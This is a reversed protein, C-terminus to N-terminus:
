AAVSGAALVHDAAARLDAFVWDPRVGDITGDVMQDGLASASIVGSLVMAFRCGLTRAFRGDTDPRDGIMVAHATTTTGLVSRVLAAMAPYPKGAIEAHVGSAREVAALIAGGGPILGDPTPYTADDNAAILRAGRRVATSARRLGEYDFWRHLGIVVADFESTAALGDNVAVDAGRRRLAEVVGDGAAVLVREAPRVLLAAAQASTLVDGVADIGAIALAHEHEALLPASNNTVFLVRHDAARLDAVAQAAGAIPIRSLWVVGDLDCLV